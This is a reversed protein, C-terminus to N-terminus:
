YHVVCRAGVDHMRYGLSANNRRILENCYDTQLLETPSPNRRAQRVAPNRGCAFKELRIEAILKDASVIGWNTIPHM